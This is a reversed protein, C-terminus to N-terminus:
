VYNKGSSVTTKKNNNNHWGGHTDDYEIENGAIEDCFEAESDSTENNAKDKAESENRIEVDNNWRIEVATPPINNYNENTM